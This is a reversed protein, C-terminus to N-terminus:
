PQVEDAELQIGLHKMLIACPKGIIRRHVLKRLQARKSDALGSM